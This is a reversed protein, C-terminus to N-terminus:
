PLLTLATAVLGGVVAQGAKTLHITDVQYYTANNQSGAVGITADGGIHVLMDAYTIGPGALKVLANGTAVSFDTLLLTNFAQRDTEFQAAAGRPLCDVMVIKQTPNATKRAQLYAKLATFIAAVTAPASAITNTGIWVHLINRTLQADFLPDVQTAGVAVLSAITNGSVGLNYSRTRNSQALLVVESFSKADTSTTGLAGSTLSDGVFIIQQQPTLPPVGLLNRNVFYTRLNSEETASLVRNIIFLAKLDGLFPFNGTNGVGLFGTTITAGSWTASNMNQTRFGEKGSAMMRVGSGRASVSSDFQWMLLDFGSSPAIGTPFQASTKAASVMALNCGMAWGSYDPFAALYGEAVDGPTTKRVVAFVTYQGNSSTPLTLVMHDKGGVDTSFNVYPDGANYVYQPTHLANTQISTGLGGTLSNPWNGVGCGNVFGGQLTTVTTVRQATTTVKIGVRTKTGFATQDGGSLVFRFVRVGNLVYDIGDVSTRVVLTMVAGSPTPAAVAGSYSTNVGAVVKGVFFGGEVVNFYLYNSADTARFILWVEDGTIWTLSAEFYGDSIGSDFTAVAQSSTLASAYLKNGLIGMTGTHTTWLKGGTPTSGIVSANDARTFNDNAITTQAANTLGLADLYILGDTTDNPTFPLGALGLSRLLTKLANVEAELQPLTDGSTTPNLNPQVIPSTGWFALAQDTATGIKMGDGVPQIDGASNLNQIRPDNDGVAIPSSASVPAVSLKTRGKIVDSADNLTGAATNVLAIVDTRTLYADPAFALTKAKNLLWLAGFTTPTTSPIAWGSFLFERPTSNEDFVQASITVTPDNADLTSTITFTPVTLVGGAVTCLIEYYFGTLGDGGLVENNQSDLFTRSYWLRLTATTGPYQFTPAPQFSSIQIQSM